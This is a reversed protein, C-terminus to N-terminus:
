WCNRYDCTYYGSQYCGDYTPCTLGCNTAPGNTVKGTGGKNSPAIREELRVIRFRRPKREAGPEPAEQREERHPEM